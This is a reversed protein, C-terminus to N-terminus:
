NIGLVQDLFFLVGGGILILALLTRDRDTRGFGTSYTGSPPPAYSQPFTTPATPAQPPYPQQPAYPSQPPLSAQPPIPSQPVPPVPQAGYPQSYQPQGTNYPAQPQAQARTQEPAPSPVEQTP